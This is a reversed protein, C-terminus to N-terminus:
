TVMGLCYPPIYILLHVKQHYPKNSEKEKGTEKEKAEPPRRKYRNSAPGLSELWTASRFRFVQSGKCM